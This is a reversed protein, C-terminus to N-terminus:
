GMEPEIFDLPVVGKKTASCVFLQVGWLNVFTLALLLKPCPMSSIILQQQARHQATSHQATSHQPVTRTEPVSSLVIHFEKQLVVSGHVFMGPFQTSVKQKGHRPRELSTAVPSGAM